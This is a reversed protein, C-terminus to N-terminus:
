SAGGVGGQESDQMTTASRRGKRLRLIAATPLALMGILAGPVLFEFTHCSPFDKPVVCGSVGGVVKDILVAIM